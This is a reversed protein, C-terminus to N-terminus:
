KNLVEDLNMLQNTLLTYAAFESVPLSPDPASDGQALMKAAHDPNATYYSRYDSFAGEAIAQEQSNLPRALLRHAIFGLREDFHAEANMATGALIRAAEFFQPDNMTVLAQLPTNTRERLVTCVERTPANFIEMSAPPASRKWFTYMSRRYLGSGEDQQYFRTNSGFMAVAEWIGEPQYPKVSPGGIKTALLGSSALAADRVMEADM